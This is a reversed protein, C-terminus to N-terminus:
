TLSAIMVWINMKGKPLKLKNDILAGSLGIGSKTMAVPLDFLLSAHVRFSEILVHNDAALTKRSINPM